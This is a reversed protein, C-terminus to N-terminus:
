RYLREQPRYDIQLLQERLESTASSHPNSVYRRAYPSEFDAVFERAAELPVFKSLDECFVWSPRRISWPENVELISDRTSIESWRWVPRSSWLRPFAFEQLIDLRVGVDREPALAATRNWAELSTPDGALLSPYRYVLHPADVLIDQAPLLYSEVWQSVRAAAVRAIQEGDLPMDRSRFGQGSALAFNRFTMREISEHKTLFERANRPLTRVVGDSLGLHEVLTGELDSEIDKVRAELAKYASILMPWSWPRFGNWSDSWLGPNHLQKSGLNIDAYSQPSGRLTLDFSNEGFQNLGVILGCRSYCRALYAVAEGTLYGAHEVQLLDYDVVLIAATDFVSKTATAAGPPRSRARRRRTKLEEFAALFEKDGVGRIEFGAKVDPIAELRRQWEAVRAPEDDYILIVNTM